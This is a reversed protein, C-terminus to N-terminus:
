GEDEIDVAEAKDKADVREAARGARPFQQRLTRETAQMAGILVAGVVERSIESLGDADNVDVAHSSKMTELDVTTTITTIITAKLMSM